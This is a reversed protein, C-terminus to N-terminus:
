PDATEGGPRDGFYVGVPTLRFTSGRGMREAVNRIAEGSPTMTPNVTVGLM